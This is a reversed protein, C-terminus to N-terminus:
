QNYFILISCSNVELHYKSSFLFCFGFPTTKYSIYLFSNSDHSYEAWQRYKVSYQWINCHFSQFYWFPLWFGCILHRVICHGSLCLSLSLCYLPWFSMLVVVSLVIALFVYPCRCVICHGFLCLSLSLCYLPCFSMLVIVSLVIAFFVYPCHCVICHGFLCLSLSLCYLPWFSMLVIVSLVIALFVYPCISLYHEEFWKVFIFILCCPVWEFRSIFEPAESPYDTGAASTVDPYIPDGTYINKKKIKM